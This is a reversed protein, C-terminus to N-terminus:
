SDWVAAAPAGIVGESVNKLQHLNVGKWKSFGDQWAAMGLEWDKRPNRNSFCVQLVLM